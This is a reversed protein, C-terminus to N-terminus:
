PLIRLDLQAVRAVGQRLSAHSALASRGLTVTQACRLGRTCKSRSAPLPPAHRMIQHTDIDAAGERIEDGIVAVLPVILTQFFRVVGPSGVSPIRSPSRACRRGRRWLGHAGRCSPRWWRWGPVCPRLADGIQRRAAEAVHGEDLAAVALRMVVDGPDLRLREDLAAVAVLEVLADIAVADHELREVLVPQAPDHALQLCRALDLRDGDAQQEGEDLRLVLPADVAIMASSSAPPAPRWRRRRAAAAPLLILAGRGGDGVGIQLRHDARIQRGHLPPQAVGAEGAAGDDDLRIAALLRQLRGGTRRNVQSHGARGAADDARWCRAASMPMSRSTVSSM